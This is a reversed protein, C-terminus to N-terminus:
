LGEVIKEAAAKSHAKIIAFSRTVSSGNKQSILFSELALRAVAESALVATDYEGFLEGGFEDSGMHVFFRM